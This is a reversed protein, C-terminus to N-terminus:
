NDASDLISIIPLNKECYNMLATGKEGVWCARAMSAVVRMRVREARRVRVDAAQIDGEGGIWEGGVVSVPGRSVHSEERLM